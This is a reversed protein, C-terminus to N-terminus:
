YLEDDESLDAQESNSSNNLGIIDKQAKDILDITNDIDAITSKIRSKLTLITLLDGSANCDDIYQGILRTSGVKGNGSIVNNLCTKAKHLNQLNILLISKQMETLNGSLAYQTISIRHNATSYGYYYECVPMLLDIIPQIISPFKEYTCCGIIHKLNAIVEDISYVKNQRSRNISISYGRMSYQLDRLSYMVDHITNVYNNAICPEANYSKTTIIEKLIKISNAINSVVLQKTVKRNNEM